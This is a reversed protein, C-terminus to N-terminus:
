LLVHGSPLTAASGIVDVHDRGYSLESADRDILNLRRSSRRHREVLEGSVKRRETSQEEFFLVLADRHTAPHRLHHCLHRRRQM